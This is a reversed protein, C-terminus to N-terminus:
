DSDNENEIQMLTRKPQPMRLIRMDETIKLFSLDQPTLFIYQKKKERAVELVLNMATRRTVHDMFVDFEDLCRLPMEVVEWLALMFCVTSFSREGGSLSRTDKHVEDARPTIELSLTGEQHDFITEGTYNRSELFSTFCSSTLKATSHLLNKYQQSRHRAAKFLKHILKEQKDVIHGFTNLHLTVAELREKIQEFNHSVNKNTEIFKLLTDLSRKVTKV